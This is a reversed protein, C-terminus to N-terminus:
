NKSISFKRDNRDNKKNKEWRDNKNGTMKNTQVAYNEACRSFTSQGILDVWAATFAWDWRYNSLPTILAAWISNAGLEHKTHAKKYKCTTSHQKKLFVTWANNQLTQKKKVSYFHLHNQLISRRQNVFWLFFDWTSTFSKKRCFHESRLPGSPIERASKQM